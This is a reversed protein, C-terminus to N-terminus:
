EEESILNLINGATEIGYEFWNCIERGFEEYYVSPSWLIYVLPKIYWPCQFVLEIESFGFSVDKYYARYGKRYYWKTFRERLETIRDHM